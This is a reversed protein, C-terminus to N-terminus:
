TFYNICLLYSSYAYLAYVLFMPPAYLLRSVKAWVTMGTYYEEERALTTFRKGYRMVFIVLAVIGFLLEMANLAMSMWEYLESSEDFFFSPLSSVTNNVIHMVMAPYISRCELTVFALLLGLLLPTASQLPNFHFLLFAISSVIIATMRGYPELGKLLVGRFLLEEMMPGVVCIYAISIAAAVPEEMHYDLFSEIMEHGAYYFPLYFTDVITVGITAAGLGGLVALAQYLFDQQPLAFLERGCRRPRLLLWGILIGTLDGLLCVVYNGITDQMAYSFGDSLFLWFLGSYLTTSAYTVFLVVAVWCMQLFIRRLMRKKTEQPSEVAIFPGM